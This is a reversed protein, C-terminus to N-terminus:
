LFRRAKLSTKLMELYAKVTNPRDATKFVKGKADMLLVTPYGRIKYKKALEINQKKLEASQEKNRPYDLEVIVFDKEAGKVFEEKSFINKHLAKCPPCWDSGTFIVLMAKQTKAAEAKAAEFDTKFDGASAIGISATSILTIALKKIMNM